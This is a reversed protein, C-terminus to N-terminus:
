SRTNKKPDVPQYPEMYDDRKGNRNTHLIRPTPGQSKQEDHNARFKKTNPWDVVDGGGGSSTWLTENADQAFQLHHTGFCTDILTFQKTKPDYYALQRGSRNM